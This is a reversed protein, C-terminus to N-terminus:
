NYFVYVTNKGWDTVVLHGTMAMAVAWPEKTKAVLTLFRGDRDFMKVLRNGSDAVFINGDEDTCVGRPLFLQGAENGREGFNFLFQGDRNFVYISNNGWDSVIIDGQGDVHIYCPVKMGQEWGVTRLHTGDSKFVLVQGHLNDKNGLTQTVLVHNRRTDVAVASRRRWETYQLNFKTLVTGQRTYKIGFGASDTCGVVWLNGERDMAVDHPYMTEEGSVVTPFQSLYEGQLTFVQIRQNGYDAVFIEGDDSVTAGVPHNFLGEEQGKGGFTVKQLPLVNQNQKVPGTESAVINGRETYQGQLTTISEQEPQQAQALPTIPNRDCRSEEFRVPINCEPVHQFNPTDGSLSREKRGEFQPSQEFRECLSTVLYNDPLGAVGNRPLQVRLRCNPCKFIGRRAAHDILCDHCFTHQCPLVKPRDFLDLCISCSLDEKFQEELSLPAATAM